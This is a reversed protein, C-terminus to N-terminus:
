RACPLDVTLLTPGNPPSVIEFTGDVSAARKALGTLGTGRTPDAGGVGDDSVIIHLRDGARSVVIEAQSAQAHKAINALGESVVFYAVAEIVPAPRRPLDVTLRVPIPMRAAVGSLAADLGRDELVAPHLGRILDRLEALASKAEEHADAIAQCAEEATSVQARAMGLNIALSVLRQQTGDHLDRELRRREADAADVAGARTEALEEVRHELEEARSPGLLARAARVDLAQVGATLWPAAFLLTVGALTLWADIQLGLIQPLHEVSPDRYLGRSPWSTPPMAHSYSYITAFAIGVLWSGVAAIAAAALVPAALVHYGVQRWVAQSRAASTITRLSPWRTLAPQSSIAVGATVRLRHRHIWTLVPLLLLLPLLALLLPWEHRGESDPRISSRVIILFLVVWAVQVPIAAAVFLAQKWARPSWPGPRRRRAAAPPMHQKEVIIAMDDVSNAGAASAWGAHNVKSPAALRVERESDVAVARM